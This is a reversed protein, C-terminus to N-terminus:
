HEYHDHVDNCLLNRWKKNQLFAESKEFLFAYAEKLLNYLDADETSLSATLIGRNRLERNRSDVVSKLPCM